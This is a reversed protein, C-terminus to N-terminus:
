GHKKRLKVIQRHYKLMEMLIYIMAPLNFLRSKGYKRKFYELKVQEINFGMYVSKTVIEASIFSGDAKLNLKDLVPKKFLKFAFNVDKIKIHYIQKIIWNYVASFLIRIASENGEAQRIGMIVDASKKELLEMARGIQKYNIPMDADTYLVLDKTAEIFGSRLAFGLGRNMAGKIIKLEKINKQLGSLQSFTDDTSGDDVVIIEYDAVITKLFDNLAIVSEKIIAEENYAPIVVSLSREM